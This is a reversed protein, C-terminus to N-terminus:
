DYEYEYTTNVKKFDLTADQDKELAIRTMTDDSM